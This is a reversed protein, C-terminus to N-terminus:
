GGTLGCTGEMCMYDGAQDDPVKGCDADVKCACGLKDGQACARDHASKAKVKDKVTDRYFEQLRRCFGGHHATLSMWDMVNAECAKELLEAARARDAKRGRDALGVGISGCSAVYGLTCAKELMLDSNASDDYEAVLACGEGNGLECARSALKATAQQKADADAKSMKARYGVPPAAANAEAVCAAADGTACTKPTQADIAAPTAAVPPPPPADQKKGCAALGVILFITRM